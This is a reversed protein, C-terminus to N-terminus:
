HCSFIQSVAEEGLKTKLKGIVSQIEAGQAMGYVYGKKPSRFSMLSNGVAVIEGKENLWSGGSAGPLNDMSSTVMDSNEGAGVVNLYTQQYEPSRGALVDTLSENDVIGRTIYGSTFAGHQGTWLPRGKIDEDRGPFALSWVFDGVALSKSAVPLCPTNQLDTKLILYDEATGYKQEMLDLYKEANGLFAQIPSIGGKFHGKGAAVLTVEIDSEKEGDRSMAVLIKRGIMQEPLKAIFVGMEPFSDGPWVMHLCHLATLIHGQNSVFTASCDGNLQFTARLTKDFTAPRHAVDVSQPDQFESSREAARASFGLTTTLAVVSLSKLLSSLSAKM